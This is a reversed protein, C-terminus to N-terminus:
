RLRHLDAVMDVQHGGALVEMDARFTWGPPIRQALAREIDHGGMKIGLPTTYEDTAVTAVDGAAIGAWLRARDDSSPLGMAIHYKAGDSKLYDEESFCLLNHLTEAYVPRGRRRESAVVEVSEGATM